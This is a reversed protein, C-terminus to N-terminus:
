ARDHNGRCAGDAFPTIAHLFMEFSIISDSPDDPEVLRRQISSALAIRGDHKEAIDVVSVRLAVDVPRLTHGGVAQLVVDVNEAHTVVDLAAKAHAHAVRHVLLLEVRLLLHVGHDREEFRQCLGTQQDTQM